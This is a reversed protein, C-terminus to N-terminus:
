LEPRITANLYGCKESQLSLLSKKVERRLDDPEAETEKLLTEFDSTKLKDIYYGPRPLYCM